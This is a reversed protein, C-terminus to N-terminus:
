SSSLLLSSTSSWPSLSKSVVPLRLLFGECEEVLAGAFGLVLECARAEGSAPGSEVELSEPAVLFGLPIVLLPTAESVAALAASSAFSATAAPELVLCFPHAEAPLLLLTLLEFSRPASFPSGLLPFM